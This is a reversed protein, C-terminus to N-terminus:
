PEVFEQRVEFRIGSGLRDHHDSLYAALVFGHGRLVDFRLHSLGHHGEDRPQGRGLSLPHAM